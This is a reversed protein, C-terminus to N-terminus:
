LRSSCRAERGHIGRRTKRPKPARRGTRYRHRAYPDEVPGAGTLDQDSEPESDDALQEAPTQHEDPQTETEPRAEPESDGEVDPEDEPQDEQPEREYITPDEVPRAGATPPERKPEEASVRIALGITAGLFVAVFITATTRASM